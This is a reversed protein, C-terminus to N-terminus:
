AIINVLMRKYQTKGAKSNNKLDQNEAKLKMMEQQMTFVTSHLSAMQKELEMRLSFEQNLIQHLYAAESVSVTPSLPMGQDLMAGCVRLCQVLFVCLLTDMMDVYVFLSLFVSSRTGIYSCSSMDM